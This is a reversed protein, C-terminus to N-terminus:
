ENPSPHKTDPHRLLRAKVRQMEKVAAEIAAIEARTIIPSGDRDVDAGREHHCVARGTDPTPADTM